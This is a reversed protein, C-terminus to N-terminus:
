TSEGQWCFHSSQSCYCCKGLSYRAQLVSSSVNPLSFNWINKQNPKIFCNNRPSKHFAYDSMEFKGIPSMWLAHPGIKSRNFMQDVQPVSSSVGPLSFGLYKKQNLKMFSM